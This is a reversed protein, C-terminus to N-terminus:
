VFLLWLASCDRGSLFQEFSTSQRGLEVSRFLCDNLKKHPASELLSFIPLPKHERRTRFFYMKKFIKCNHNRIVTTLSLRRRTKSAKKNTIKPPLKAWNTVDPGTLVQIPSRRCVPLGDRYTVLWGPWSLRAMGRHTHVILVLSLQPTFLCVARHM